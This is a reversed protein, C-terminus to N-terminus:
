NLFAALEDRDMYSHRNLKAIVAMLALSGFRPFFKLLGCIISAYKLIRLSEKDKKGLAEAKEHSTIGGVGWWKAHDMYYIEEQSRSEPNEYWPEHRVQCEGAIRLAPWFYFRETYRPYYALQTDAPALYVDPAIKRLENWNDSESRVVNGQKVSTLALDDIRLASGIKRMGPYKRSFKWLKECCENATMSYNLDGDTLFFGDNKVINIFQPNLWLGRPGINPLNLVHVGESSIDNLYKILPPFSSDMDAIIIKLAM